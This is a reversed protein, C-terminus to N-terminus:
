LTLLDTGLQVIADDNFGLLVNNAFFTIRTYLSENEVMRGKKLKLQKEKFM